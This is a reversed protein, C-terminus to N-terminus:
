FFLMFDGLTISIKVDAISSTEKFTLEKFIDMTYNCFIGM